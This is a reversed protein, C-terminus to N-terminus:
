RVGVLKREKFIETAKNVINKKSRLNFTIEEGTLRKVFNVIQPSTMHEFSFGKNKKLATLTRKKIYKNPLYLKKIEKDGIGVVKYQCCRMKQNNYDTPVAVVDRPNVKVLVMTYAINHAYAHSAVHLGDSCTQRPNPDVAKRSMKVVQGINNIFKGSYTDVLEGKDNKNVYKYALFDGDETIPHHNKTLFGYLQNKSRESPNLSLKKAFKVLCQYPQGKKSFQILKEAIVAHVPKDEGTLYLMGAKDVMFEDNTYTAVRQAPFLIGVAAEEDGKGLLGVVRKYMKDTKKLFATKGKHILTLKTGTIIWKAKM